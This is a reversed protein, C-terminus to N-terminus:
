HAGKYDKEGVDVKLAIRNQSPPLPCTAFENFACPPSYAKNFDLLLKGDVPLPVYMFRGAGYTGHGSTTDAFMIFLQQSDPSELIADLRWEQGSKKFTVFGPSTMDEVMGLVNVIPIVKAPEYPTFRARRVWYPDIDYYDLGTFGTRLPHEVDRVRVGLRGAREILYFRLTGLALKTPAGSTDPALDLSTVPEGALSVAADPRAQFRVVGDGLFFSGAVDPMQPHDLVLTNHPARGFTNEGERLWYLGVLTLWGEEAKLRELRQARWAEVEARHAAPDVPPRNCGSLAVVATVVLIATARIRM